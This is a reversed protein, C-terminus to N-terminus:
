FDTHPDPTSKLYLTDIRYVGNESIVREIHQEADEKNMFCFEELVSYYDVNNYIYFGTELNLIVYVKKM